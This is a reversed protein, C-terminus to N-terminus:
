ITKHATMTVCGMCRTQCSQDLSLLSAVQQCLILRERIKRAGSASASMGSKESRRERERFIKRAASASVLFILAARGLAGWFFSFLRVIYPLGGFDQRYKAICLSSKLSSDRLFERNLKFTNLVNYSVYFLGFLALFSQFPCFIYIKTKLPNSGVSTM